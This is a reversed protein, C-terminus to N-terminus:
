LSNINNNKIDLQLTLEVLKLGDEFLWDLLEDVAAADTLLIVILVVLLKLCNTPILEDTTM